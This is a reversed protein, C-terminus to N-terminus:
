FIKGTEPFIWQFPSSGRFGNWTADDSFISRPQTQGNWLPFKEKLEEM